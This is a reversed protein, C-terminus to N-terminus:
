EEASPADMQFKKKSPLNPKMFIAPGALTKPKQGSFGLQSPELNSKVPKIEENQKRTVVQPTPYKVPSEYEQRRQIQDLEADIFDDQDASEAIGFNMNKPAGFSPKAFSNPKKAIIIAPKSSSTTIKGISSPKINPKSTAAATVSGDLVGLESSIFEDINKM